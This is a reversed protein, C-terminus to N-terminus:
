LKKKPFLLGWFQLVKRFGYKKKRGSDGKKEARCQQCFLLSWLHLGILVMMVCLFPFDLIKMFYGLYPIQFRLVGLVQGSSKTISDAGNEAVYVTEKGQETDKRVDVYIVAGAPVQPSMSSSLVVYPQLGWLYPLNLLFMMAAMVFAIRRLMKM